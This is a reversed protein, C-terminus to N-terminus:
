RTLATGMTTTRTRSPWNGSPSVAVQMQDEVAGATVQSTVAAPLRGVTTGDPNLGAAWVAPDTGAVSWGIVADQQDDIAARPSNAGTGSSVQVEPSLGTGTADFSRAWISNTGTHDSEWAVTFDGNFNAAIAAHWQQGDSITNASRRTLRGRRHGEGSPDARHQLLRQRRHGRGVRRARRRVGPM